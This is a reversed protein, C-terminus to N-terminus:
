QCLKPIHLVATRYVIIKDYSHPPEAEADASLALLQAPDFQELALVFMHYDTAMAAFRYSIDQSTAIQEISM